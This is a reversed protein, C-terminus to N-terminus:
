RKRFALMRNETLGPLTPSEASEFHGTGVVQATVADADLHVHGKVWDSADKKGPDFDVIFLRGGPKLARAVDTIFTEPAELHHYVDVMLVADMSADPLGTRDVFSEIVQVDPWGDAAVLEKLHARFVSSLETAVIKGDMGVAAVLPQLHAGTGAGIDAVHDGPRLAMAAVIADRQAFVERESKEFRASWEAVNLAPDVFKENSAPGRAHEPKPAHEPKAMQEPKPEAPEPPAAPTGTQCALLLYWM